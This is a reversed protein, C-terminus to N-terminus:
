LVPPPALIARSGFPLVLSLQRRLTTPRFDPLKSFTIVSWSPWVVSLARFVLPVGTRPSFGRSSPDGSRIIDVPGPFPGSPLFGRLPGAGEGPVYVAFSISEPSSSAASSPSIGSRSCDWSPLNGEVAVSEKHSICRGFPASGDLIVSSPPAIGRFGSEVISFRSWSPSLDEM